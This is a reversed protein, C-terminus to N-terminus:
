EKCLIPLTNIELHILQLPCTARVPDFLIACPSPVFTQLFSIKLFVSAYTPLSEFSGYLFSAIVYKVCCQLQLQFQFLLNIAAACLDRITVIMTHLSKRSWKDSFFMEKQFVRLLGKASFHPIDLYTVYVSILFISSFVKM